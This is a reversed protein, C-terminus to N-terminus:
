YKALFNRCKLSYKDFINQYEEAYNFGITSKWEANFYFFEDTKLKYYYKKIDLIIELMETDVTEEKTFEGWDSNIIVKGEKTEFNGNFPREEEKPHHYFIYYENYKPDILFENTNFKFPFQSFNSDNILAIKKPRNAVEYGKNLHEYL